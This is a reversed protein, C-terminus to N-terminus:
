YQKELCLYLKNFFKPDPNQSLYKYKQMNKHNWTHM